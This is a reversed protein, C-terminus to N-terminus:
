IRFLFPRVDVTLRSLEAENHALLEHRWLQYRGEACETALTNGITEFSMKCSGRLKEPESRVGLCYVRNKIQKPISDRVIRDRGTIDDDFDILLLLRREKFKELQCDKLKALVKGWGGAPPLVQINRQLLQQNILFGNIIERNADDEPLIQLHAVYRNSM